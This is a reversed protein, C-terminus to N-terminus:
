MLNAWNVATKSRAILRSRCWAAWPELVLAQSLFGVILKPPFNVVGLVQKGIPKDATYLETAQAGSTLIGIEAGFDIEM